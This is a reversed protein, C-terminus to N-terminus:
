KLTDNQSLSGGQLHVFNSYMNSGGGLPTKKNETYGGNPNFIQSTTCFYYPPEINILWKGRQDEM